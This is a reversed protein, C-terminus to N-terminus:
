GRDMIGPQAATRGGLTQAVPYIQVAVLVRWHKGLQWVAQNSLQSIRAISLEAETPKPRFVRWHM